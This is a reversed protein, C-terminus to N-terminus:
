LVPSVLQLKDLEDDFYNSGMLRRSSHLLNVFGIEVRGSSRKYVAGVVQGATDGVEGHTDHLLTFGPRLVNSALYENWAEVMSNEGFSYSGGSLIKGFQALDKPQLEKPLRHKAFWRYRDMLEIMRRNAEDAPRFAALLQYAKLVPYSTVGECRINKFGGSRAVTRIKQFWIAFESGPIRPGSAALNLSSHTSLQFPDETRLARITLDSPYLPNAVLEFWFFPRNSAGGKGHPCQLRVNYRTDSALEIHVTVSGLREEIQSLYEASLLDKPTLKLESGRFDWSVIAPHSLEEVTPGCGKIESSYADGSQLLLVYFLARFSM